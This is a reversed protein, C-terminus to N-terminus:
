SNAINMLAAAGMNNNSMQKQQKLIQIETKLQTIKREPQNQKKKARYANVRKREKEMFSGDNLKKKQRCDKFCETNPKQYKNVPPMKDM